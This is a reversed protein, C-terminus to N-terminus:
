SGLRDNLDRVHIALGESRQQAKATVMDKSPSKKHIKLFHSALGRASCRCTSCPLRTNSAHCRSFSRRILRGLHRCSGPLDTSRAPLLKCQDKGVYLMCILRPLALLEECLMPMYRSCMCRAAIDTNSPRRELPTEPGSRTM